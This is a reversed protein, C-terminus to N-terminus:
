VTKTVYCLSTLSFDETLSLSMYLTLDGLLELSRLQFITFHRKLWLVSPPRILFSTTVSNTYSTSSYGSM